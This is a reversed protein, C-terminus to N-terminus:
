DLESQNIVRRVSKGALEFMKVAYGASHDESYVIETIDTQSLMRSCPPCPLLNIFLTTGKLDISKKSTEILLEVEAHVTDYHNLDNPPSHHRERSAGFHMAYTEYPVVNNHSTTLLSYKGSKTRRGLSAGTQFNYDFSFLRAKDAITLMSEENHLSGPQPLDAAQEIEKAVKKAYNKADTEDTFPTVLEFDTKRNVLAYYPELTHFAYKWSGNIFLVKRFNLKELLYKLERQFYEITVVKNKSHRNVKEAISKVNKPQLTKFQPQGEFGDIFDEKALGLVIHGKPLNVKILEIFRKDSLERPAAIFLAGLENM